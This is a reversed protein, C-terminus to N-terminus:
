LLFGIILKDTRETFTGGHSARGRQSVRHRDLGLGRVACRSHSKIASTVAAAKATGTLSSIAGVLRVGVVAKARCLAM